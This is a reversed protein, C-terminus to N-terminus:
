VPNPLEEIRVLPQGARIAQVFAPKDKPSVLVSGGDCIVGRAGKEHV